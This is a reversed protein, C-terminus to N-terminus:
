LELHFLKPQKKKIVTLPSKLDYSMLLCSHATVSNLLVLILTSVLKILRQLYRTAVLRHLPERGPEETEQGLCTM